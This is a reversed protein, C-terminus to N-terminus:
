GREMFRELHDLFVRTKAPLYRRMPMVAWAPVSPLCWEPLVRVLRNRRVDELTFRDPLAGIGAGDLLLQQIVGISNLALRGPPVGEWNSKGRSLKWPILQGQDSLMRLTTHQLLEEPHKPAPHLGLYIPSAYLGFHQEDIKRAVLTSDNELTGMRIALDFREGILDVLRSSLDLDLHIEPYSEIFTALARSLNQKAYDEPMSVRLRGHPKVDQSRVFDQATAVEEAVRRCHDLFEQGFETLTLRRTTRLLLRQGLVTELNTLRRSVTAKPMGLHEAARVLSEQEAIAAFLIYDDASINKQEM